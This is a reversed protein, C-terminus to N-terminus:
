TSSGRTCLHASAAVAGTAGMLILPFLYPDDGGLVAFGPGTEALVTLTDISGAQKVGAVNDTAALELLAAAGLGRGTRYPINYVVVPVPSRAAVYQFHAVIARVSSRVYYPVLALSASAAPM